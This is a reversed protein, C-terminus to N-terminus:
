RTPGAEITVEVAREHPRGEAVRGSFLRLPFLGAAQELDMSANPVESWSFKASRMCSSEKPELPALSASVPGLAQADSQRLTFVSVYAHSKSFSPQYGVVYAVLQGRQSVLHGWERPGEFGSATCFRKKVPLNKRTVFKHDQVLHERVDKIPGPRPCSGAWHLPCRRCRVASASSLIAEAAAGGEKVIKMKKAVTDLIDKGTVTAEAERRRREPAM